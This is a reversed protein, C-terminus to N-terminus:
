EQTTATQGSALIAGRSVAERGHIGRDSGPWTMARYGADDGQGTVRVTLRQCFLEAGGVDDLLAAVLGDLGDHLEGLTDADVGGQLADAGALGELRRDGDSM